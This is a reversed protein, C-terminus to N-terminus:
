KFSGQLDSSAQAANSSTTTLITGFSDFAKSMQNITEANQEYIALYQNYDESKWCRGLEEIASRLSNMETAYRSSFNQFNQGSKQVEGPNMEYTGTNAM